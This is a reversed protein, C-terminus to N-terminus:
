AGWVAGSRDGNNAASPAYSPSYTSSATATGGNAALAVNVGEAPPPDTITVSVPTSTVSLGLNDTAVATLDYPGPAGVTWPVSYSSGTGGQSGVLSGNAFFEVQAITGDSDTATAGLTVEAPAEYSSGTVPATLSVSPPSNSPPTTVTITATASTTQGGGDDTATATIAYTGAPVSSWVATFPDAPATATAVLSGDAFFEVKTVTGDTDGATASLTVETPMEYSSGTVPATLTVTPPDNSSGTTYVEVETTRSRGARTKTVWIRISSTTVAPFVVKAWVLTNGVVTGGPVVQWAAGDWYQIEFDELALVTTMTPTPEVPNSANEQLSFVNVEGITYPVAFDIQLWDPLGAGSDQWVGGAGWVAGSRDGNNAAGPAYSPSYFTSASATAGYIDLAVNVDTAPVPPEITVSVPSSVVETGDDDVARATLLHSGVPAIWVATFPETVDTELRTANAYFRVESITGDPDFADASLTLTVPAQYTGDPPSDLAVTPAQNPSVDGVTIIIPASPAAAGENDTARALLDYTGTVDVPWLVTYPASTDSGVPTGGAYFDVRTVAGDSDSADATLTITAPNEFASGNTPATLAVSPPSNTPGPAGGVTDM